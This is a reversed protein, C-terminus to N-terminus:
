KRPATMPPSPAPELRTAPTPSSIGEYRPRRDPDVWRPASDVARQEVSAIVRFPLSPDSGIVVASWPLVVKTEGIGAVGGLGAIVHSVRGTKPDIVLREVEGLDKGERNKVRAGILTTSMVTGDPATWETRDAKREAAPAVPPAVILAAALVPPFFAIAWTARGSRIARRLRWIDM